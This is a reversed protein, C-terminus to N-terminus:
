PVMSSRRPTGAVQQLVGFLEKLSGMREQLRDELDGIQQENDEFASEKGASVRELRLREEIIQNLLTEREEQVAQFRALREDNELRDQNHGTRVADLLGELTLDAATTEEAQSVGSVLGSVVLVAVVLLCKLHNSM